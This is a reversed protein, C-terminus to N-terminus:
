IRPEIAGPGAVPPRRYRAIFGRDIRDKWHWV